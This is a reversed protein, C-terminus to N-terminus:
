RTAPGGSGTRSCMRPQQGPENSRGRALSLPIECWHCRRRSPAAASRPPVQRTPLYMPGTYVWVDAHRATLERGYQELRAWYDRNFGAGVQPCRPPPPCATAPDARCQVSCFVRRRRGAAAQLHSACTGAGSARPASRRPAVQPCINSLLFTTDMAHQSAKADAQGARSPQAGCTGRATCRPASWGGSLIRLARSWARSWCAARQPRASRPRWTAATSVRADTTPWGRASARPSPGSAM